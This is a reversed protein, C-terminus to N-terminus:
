GQRHNPGEPPHRAQKRISFFALVFIWSPSFPPLLSQLPFIFPPPVGLLYYFYRVKSGRMRERRSLAERKGGRRKGSHAARSSIDGLLFYMKQLGSFSESSVRPLTRIGSGRQRALLFVSPCSMEQSRVESSGEDERVDRRRRGVRGLVSRDRLGRVGGAMRSSPASSPSLLGGKLSCHATPWLDCRSLVVSGMMWNGDSM